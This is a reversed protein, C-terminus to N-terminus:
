WWICDKSMQVIDCPENIEVDSSLYVHGELNLETILENFVQLPGDNDSIIKFIPVYRKSKQYRKIARKLAKKPELWVLGLSVDYDFEKLTNYISVISAKNAGVKPIVMNADINLCNAFLGDAEQYILDDSEDHTWFAGNPFALEPFKRKAFDSDIVYAGQMDSMVQAVTSKGSAPLGLLIIAKKNMRVRNRPKSGGYGIRIDDDNKPITLDVLEKLIQSKLELRKGDFSILSKFEYGNLWEILAVERALVMRKNYDDEIEYSELLEEIVEIETCFEESNCVPKEEKAM